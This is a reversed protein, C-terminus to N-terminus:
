YQWIVATAVANVALAIGAIVAAGAVTLSEASLAIALGAGATILAVALSLMVGIIKESISNDINM